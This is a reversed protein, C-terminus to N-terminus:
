GAARAEAAGVLAVLWDRAEGGDLHADFLTAGDDDYFEDDDLDLLTRAMDQIRWGPLTEGDPATFEAPGTLEWGSFILAWGAICAATGCVDDPKGWVWQHHQDPHASIHDLIKRGLEADM